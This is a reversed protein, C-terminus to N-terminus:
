ARGSLRMQRLLGSFREDSRLSRFTPQVKLFVLRTAREEYAKQLQDFAQDKEELGTYITALALPSVYQKTSLEQLEDLLEIAETRNTL